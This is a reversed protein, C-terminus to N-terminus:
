PEVVITGTMGEHLLCEYEYTGPQDFRVTFTPAPSGPPLQAADLFGSHLAGGAFATPDGAPELVVPNLELRPPGDNSPHPIVVDPAPKGGLFTVTHPTAPDKWVWTVADGAKITVQQPLFRGVMIMHDGAGAAIGASVGEVPQEGTNSALVAIGNKALAANIEETRRANVEVPTDTVEGVPKVVVTGTMEPHVLCLYEYTGPKPFTLTYTQGKDLLGSGAVGGGDYSSDGSPMVAAPNMFVGDSGADIFPPPSGGGLFSITHFETSDVRWTVSDGAAITITRPAFANVQVEANASEAGASITMSRPEDTAAGLPPALGLLAVILSAGLGVAVAPRRVVM